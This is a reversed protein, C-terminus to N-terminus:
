CRRPSQGGRRPRSGSSRRRTAPSGPGALEDGVEVAYGAERLADLSRDVDAERVLVYDTDFTGIPLISVGAGALAGALAAMIGVAEFPLPGAVRLLRFAAEHRVTSPVVAVACVVSVEDATQSVSLFGPARGVWLPIGTGAELRCVALRDGTLRVRLGTAPDPQRAPVSM